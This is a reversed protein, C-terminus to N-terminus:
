NWPISHPSAFMTVECHLARPSVDEGLLFTLPVQSALHGDLVRPSLIVIGRQLKVEPTKRGM